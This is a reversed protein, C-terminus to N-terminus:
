ADAVGDTAEQLAKRGALRRPWLLRHGEGDAHDSQAGLHGLGIADDRLMLDGGELLDKM